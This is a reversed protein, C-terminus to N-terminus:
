FDTPIKKSVSGGAKVAQYAASVPTCFKAFLLSFWPSFHLQLYVRVASNLIFIPFM